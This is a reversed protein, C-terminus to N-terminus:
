SKMGLFRTNIKLQRFFSAHCLLFLAQFQIDRISCFFRSFNPKPHPAQPYLKLAKSTSSPLLKEQVWSAKTAKSDSHVPSSDGSAPKISGFVKSASIDAKRQIKPDRVFDILMSEPAFSM